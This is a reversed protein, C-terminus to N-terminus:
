LDKDLLDDIDDMELVIYLARIKGELYQLMLFGSPSFKKINKKYEKRYEKLLFSLYNLAEKEDIM